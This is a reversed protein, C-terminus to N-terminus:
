RNILPLYHQIVPQWGAGWFGGALFYEGSRMVRTDAQGITGSLTYQGGNSIGGGGDVTWWTLSYDAVFAYVVTTSVLVLLLVMLILLPKPKM